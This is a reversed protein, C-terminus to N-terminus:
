STIVFDNTKGKRKKRGVLGEYVGREKTKQIKERKM